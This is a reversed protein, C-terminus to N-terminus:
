RPYPAGLFLPPPSYRLVVAAAFPEPSDLCRALIGESRLESARSESPSAGPQVLPAAFHWVVALVCLTVLYWSLGTIAQCLSTSRVKLRDPPKGAWSDTLTWSPCAIMKEGSILRAPALANLIEQGLADDLCITPQRARSTV